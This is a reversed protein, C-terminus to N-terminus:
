SSVNFAGSYTQATGSTTPDSGDTTYKIFKLGSGTGNGSLTVSVPSTNNWGAGNASPSLSASATPVATDVVIGASVQSGNGGNVFITHAGDSPQPLTVSISANGDGDAAAPTSSLVNGTSAADLRFELTENPDFNVLSGSVTFNGGSLDPTGFLSKALTLAKTASVTVAGSKDSEPSTWNTAFKATVTYKWEGGPVLKEDCTTATLTGTCDTLTTQLADTNADYRKVTYGDVAGGTSLTTAGWTVTVKRGVASVTPAAPKNVSGGKSAGSGASTAGATWFAWAAASVGVFCLGIVLALLRRRRVGSTSLTTKIASM